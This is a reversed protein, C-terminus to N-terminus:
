GVHFQKNCECEKSGAVDVHQETGGIRNERLCLMDILRILEYCGM